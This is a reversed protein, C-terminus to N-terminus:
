GSKVGKYVSEIQEAMKECNFKERVLLKGKESFQLRMKDDSLMHQIAYQLQEKDYPVVLGAQGNNVAEAIGCRDTLVVPTGCACAELITMGFIEYSSPLVCIDADVYAKLKEREYLPGTILIKEGIHLEKILQRLPSLYGDSPGAIVLRANDIEESLDAFAKTLLDLGKTKHIRGLYFIIRQNDNLGYKRKFEGRQPLNDFESLDIGHPIIAIKDESIGMSKYQEVEEKTIAIVKSADKLIGYGWIVDFIKKLWGKQFFTTLSGHAQLVYPVNYKKAYHHITAALLTRHDHIHIIDFQKVEKKAILPLYYPIPPIRTSLYKRLNAFYYVRMGELDIPRNAEVDLERLIMNTTYVTVNHGQEALRKSIGYAVKTVGGAEWSPKFSLTVQLIRMKTGVAQLVVNNGGVLDGRSLSSGTTAGNNGL